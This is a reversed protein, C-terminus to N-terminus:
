PVCKLLRAQPMQCAYLSIEIHFRQSLILQGCVAQLIWHSHAQRLGMGKQTALFGRYLDLSPLLPRMGLFFYNPNYLLRRVQVRTCHSQCESIQELSGAVLSSPHPGEISPNPVTHGGTGEHPYLTRTAPGTAWLKSHTQLLLPAKNVLRM